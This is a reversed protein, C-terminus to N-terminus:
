FIWTIIRPFKISLLSGLSALYWEMVEVLFISSIEWEVCYSFMMQCAVNSGIMLTDSLRRIKQLDECDKPIKFLAERTYFEYILAPSCLESFEDRSKPLRSFCTSDTTRGRPQSCGAHTSRTLKGGESGFAPPPPASPSLYRYPLIPFEATSGLLRYLATTAPAGRGPFNQM